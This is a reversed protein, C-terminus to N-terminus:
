GIFDNIADIFICGVTDQKRMKMAMTNIVKQIKEDSHVGTVPCVMDKATNAQIEQLKFKAEKLRPVHKRMEFWDMFEEVHEM